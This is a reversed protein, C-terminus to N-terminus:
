KFGDCHKTKILCDSEVVGSWNQILQEICLIRGSSRDVGKFEPAVRIRRGGRSADPLKLRKRTKPHLNWHGARLALGKGSTVSRDQRSGKGVKNLPGSAVLRPSRIRTQTRGPTFTMWDNPKEHVIFLVGHTKCLLVSKRGVQWMALCGAEM